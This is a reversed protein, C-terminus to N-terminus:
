MRCANGNVDTQKTGITEAATDTYYLTVSLGTIRALTQDVARDTLLATYAQNPAITFM